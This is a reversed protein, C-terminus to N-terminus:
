ECPNDESGIRSELYDLRVFDPVPHLLLCTTVYRHWRWRGRGLRVGRVIVTARDEGPFDVVTRPVVFRDGDSPGGILEVRVFLDIM